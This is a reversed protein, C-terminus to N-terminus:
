VFLGLKFRTEHLKSFEQRVHDTATDISRSSLLVRVLVSGMALVM